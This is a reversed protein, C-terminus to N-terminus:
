SLVVQGLCFLHGRPAVLPDWMGCAVQRLTKAQCARAPDRQGSAAVRSAQGNPIGSGM